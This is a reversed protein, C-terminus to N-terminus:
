CNSRAFNAEDPPPPFPSADVDEVPPTGVVPFNCIGVEILPNGEVAGIASFTQELHSVAYVPPDRNQPTQPFFRSHILAAYSFVLFISFKFIFILCTCIIFVFVYYSRKRRKKQM